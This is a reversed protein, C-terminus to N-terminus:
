NKAKEEYEKVFKQYNDLDRLVMINFRLGKNAADGITKIMVGVEDNKIFIPSQHEGQPDAILAELESTKTLKLM